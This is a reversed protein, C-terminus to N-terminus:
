GIWSLVRERVDELYTLQVINGRQIVPYFCEASVFDEGVFSITFLRKNFEFESDVMIVSENGEEVNVETNENEAPLSLPRKRGIVHSCIDRYVVNEDYESCSYWVFCRITQRGDFMFDVSDRQTRQTFPEEREESGEVINLLNGVQLDRVQLQHGEKPTPAIARVNVTTTEGFIGCLCELDDCKEKVKLVFLGPLTWRHPFSVPFSKHDRFLLESRKSKHDSLDM